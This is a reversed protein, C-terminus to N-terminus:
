RRRYIRWVDRAMGLSDRLPRLRSDPEYRWVVPVERVTFGARHALYILEVDFAWGDTLLQPFLQQAVATDLVKFGCQTDNHGALLLQQVGRNFARGMWHRWPPEGIRRARSGERTALVVDGQVALLEPIYAPAVSWDVDALLVRPSTAHAVGAKLAGGKGRHPEALVLTDPGALARAAALTGDSSGDDVLILELPEQLLVRLRAVGSMGAEIRHVENFLPIVVSLGPM